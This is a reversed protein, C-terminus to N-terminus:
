HRMLAQVVITVFVGGIAGGMASFLLVKTEVVALRVLHARLDGDLRLLDDQRQEEMRLNHSNIDGRLAHVNNALRALEESVYVKCEDWSKGDFHAPEHPM